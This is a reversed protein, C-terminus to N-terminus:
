NSARLVHRPVRECVHAREARRGDFNHAHVVIESAQDPTGDPKRANLGEDETREGSGSRSLGSGFYALPEM